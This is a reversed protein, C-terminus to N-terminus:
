KNILEAIAAAQVRLEPVATSELLQGTLLSGIVYLNPYLGGWARYHPDAAVGLRTDHAELLRNELLHRLLPNASNALNLEFGTCNILITPRLRLEEHATRILLDGADTTTMRKSRLVVLTQSAIESEIRAAIEPAMRHRHVNWLTNLRKLFTRKQATTLRQWLPVTHPRLADIVARWEKGQRITHRVQRLVASLTKHPMLEAETFAFVEQTQTHARPMQGTTSAAIIRGRYGARRLTLLVDVMTLGSGICFVPDPWQAAQAFLNPAWPNQVIKEAPWQPLVPKVEHGTALVVREIAIADGRETLIAIAGQTQIATARSPVLFIQCGKQAALTQTEQWISQLYDGYLMRPIFDNAGYDCRLKRAAAAYRGTSSELWQVLHSSHEAFASMNSARVNLLHEPNPTRYAMGLADMTPDVLYLTLPANAKRVLNAAVMLGSFGFGIIGIRM